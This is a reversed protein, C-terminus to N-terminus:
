RKSVPRGLARPLLTADVDAVGAAYSADFSLSRLFWAQKGFIRTTMNAVCASLSSTAMLVRPSSIRLRDLLWTSRSSYTSPFYTEAAHPHKAVLRVTNRGEERRRIRNETEDFKSSIHWCVAEIDFVAVTGSDLIRLAFDTDELGYGVFSEDFGGIDRFLQTSGSLNAIGVPLQNLREIRGAAARRKNLDEWWTRIYAPVDLDDPFMCPGLLVINEGDEHARRHREAAGVTPVLDDDLFWTLEGSAISLCTNRAAAPGANEQWSATVPVVLDLQEIADKSGDTSGDLAVVVDVGKWNEPDSRAQDDISSLLRVVADRRQYSPICITMSKM